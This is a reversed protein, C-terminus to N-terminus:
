PCLTKKSIGKSRKRVFAIVAPLNNVASLIILHLFPDRFRPTAYIAGPISLYACLLLIGINIVKNNQINIILGAFYFLYILYLFVCFCVQVFGIFVQAKLVGDSQNLFTLRFSTFMEYVFGKLSAFVFAGFHEKIFGYGYKGRLVSKQPVNLSSNNLEPYEQLLIKENADKLEKAINQPDPVDIGEVVARIVPTQLMAVDDNNLTTFIFVGSHLYNRFSWGCFMVAWCLFFVIFCKGSIKKLILFVLLAACLLMNFYLLVPRTFLAYNLCLSFGAFYIFNRGYYIYKVLYYVGLLVLLGFLTETQISFSYTYSPANILLLASGFLSFIKPTNLALLIKYFLYIKFSLMLIQIILGTMDTGGFFYIFSLFLPYGPTRRYDPNVGDASFFGDQLLHMAPLVYSTKDSSVIDHGGLVFLLLGFSIIVYICCIALIGKNDKLHQKLTNICVKGNIKKM